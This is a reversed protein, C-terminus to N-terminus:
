NVPIPQGLVPAPRRLVADVVARALALEERVTSWTLAKVGYPQIDAPVGVANVGLTRCTFIARPLHFKQTVLVVDDVLFIDRARYCTDYTRRGAYDPQIDTAPVGHATLYDLMAKPENYDKFRNDGSVIIKQVKGAAYLRRATELRDALMNSPNGNPQVQAGFVVAVRKPSVDDAPSIYRAAFLAIAVRVIIFLAFILILFQLIRRFKKM